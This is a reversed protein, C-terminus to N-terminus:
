CALLAKGARSGPPTGSCAMVSSPNARVLTSDCRTVQYIGPLTGHAAAVSIRVYEGVDAYCVLCCLQLTPMSFRGSGCLLVHYQRVTHNSVLASQHQELAYAARLMTLIWTIGAQHHRALGKVCM